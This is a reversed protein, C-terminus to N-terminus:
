GSRDDLWNYNTPRYLKNYHDNAIMNATPDPAPTQTRRGTAFVKVALRENESQDNINIGRVWDKACTFTALPTENEDQLTILLNGVEPLVKVIIWYIYVVSGVDNKVGSETTSASIYKIDVLDPQIAVEPALIGLGSLSNALLVKSINEAQSYDTATIPAMICMALVLLGLIVLKIKM